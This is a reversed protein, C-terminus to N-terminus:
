WESRAAGQKVTRARCSRHLLDKVEERILLAERRVRRWRFASGTADSMENRTPRGPGLRLPVSVGFDPYVRAMVARRMAPLEDGWCRLPIGCIRFVDVGDISRAFSNVCWPKGILKPHQVEITPLRVGPSILGSRRRSRRGERYRVRHRAPIDRYRPSRDDPGAHSLSARRPACHTSQHTRSRLGVLVAVAAASFPLWCVM